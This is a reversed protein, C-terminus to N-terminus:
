CARVGGYLASTQPRCTSAGRPHCLEGPSTSESSSPSGTLLLDTSLVTAGRGGGGQAGLSSEQDPSSINETGTTSIETTQALRTSAPLSRLTRGGGKTATTSVSTSTTPFDSVRRETAAVNSPQYSSGIAVACYFFRSKYM